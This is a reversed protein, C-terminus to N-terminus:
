RPKYLLYKERMKKYADLEPEWTKKIEEETLGNQLQQRLTANGALKDFFSESTFFDEKNYIKYYKILWSLTFRTNKPELSLNEGFCNQNEYKPYKSAGEISVPTFEFSGYTSDPFGIVQFPYKTGRGISMVTPEFLCLSPYLAIARNNPLNPSPKVPLTYHTSHTYNKVKVVTLDCAVGNALWGEGNIMKALEGVTLGHVIPIPEMGVFSQYATDLVPGAVYHGNPNPRDLVFLKKDQEACAEMVYHTTSIYTYFRVGVDQIDFILVDLGELDEKTPKKHSGYLSIIPTGTKKDVENEVQEGADSTGRFGHEPAFVKKVDVHLSILTDILHSSGVLSTQNVVLGVRKGKLLSVYDEFQQAGVMLTGTEEKDKRKLTFLIIPILLVILASSSKKM